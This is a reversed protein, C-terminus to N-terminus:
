VCNVWREEGASLRWPALQPTLVPHFTGKLVVNTVRYFLTHLYIELGDDSLAASFQWRIHFKLPYFTSYM